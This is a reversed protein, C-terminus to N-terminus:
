RARRRARKPSAASIPIVPREEREYCLCHFYPGARGLRATMPGGCRPCPAACSELGQLHRDLGDKSRSHARPVSRGPHCRYRASSM